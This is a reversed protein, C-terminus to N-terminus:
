GDALEALIRDLDARWSNRVLLHPGRLELGAILAPDTEFAITPDNGFAEGILKRYREQDSPALPTASVAELTTGDAAVAQRTPDPLAHIEKLLWDLFAARVAPGDLRSALREAIAVALRSARESWAKEAAQREAEIASKAAARLLDAEARADDLRKARVQEAEQEAVKLVAEREEAIGARAHEVEALVAQAASRKDDAEALIRRAATRRQEIIAAVPRWFFRQLLWVLIVVNVTQIGLTWWDITM